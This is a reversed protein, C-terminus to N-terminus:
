ILRSTSPRYQPAATPAPSDTSITKAVDSSILKFTLMLTRAVGVQGHM